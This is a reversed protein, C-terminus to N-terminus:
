GPESARSPVPVAAHGVRKGLAAPDNITLTRSHLTIENKTRLIQIMRNVHVNTLGTADGLIDQRVPFYFQHERILGCLALRDRFELLLDAVRSEANFRGLRVIQMHLYAEQMLRDAAMLTGLDAVDQQAPLICCHMPTLSVYQSVCWAAAGERRDILDGPLLFRLVQRRGDAIYRVAMAWGTLVLVPDVGPPLQVMLDVGVNLRGCLRASAVLQSARDVDLCGIKCIRNLAHSRSFPKICHDASKSQSSLGSFSAAHAYHM